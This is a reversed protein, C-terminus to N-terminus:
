SSRRLSYKLWLYGCLSSLISAIIIGLREDFFRDDGSGEFALSGIFLSMTFGIGCLIAVGYLMSWNVSSPLKALGAKVALWAFSFVGIQKGVFLGLAVGFTVPHLLNDMGTNGLYIGSNAFAFLPLVCFAVFGHLDNELEKLPARGSEDEPALPIFMALLVGALTAHVGSKLVAVWMVVGVFIYPVLSYVKMRNFLALVVVSIAAVILSSTALDGSYFLAIIIIAGVDDFIALSVLFTKLAVPVRSGLLSLIGLAFAIDTATPIAWGAMTDPNDGNIVIYIAAPVVMGGIAAFAPLAIARVSSLEGELIERKLELGVIFFFVAMLGDNIWLLLPKAIQLPGVRVEVPVDLLLDYYHSLPSNALLMAMLAAGILMIGSASELKLFRNIASIM